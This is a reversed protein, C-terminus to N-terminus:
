MLRSLLRDRTQSGLWASNLVRNSVSQRGRSLFPLLPQFDQGVPEM